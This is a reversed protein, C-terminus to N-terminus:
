SEEYVEVENSIKEMASEAAPKKTVFYDYAVTFIVTQTEDDMHANMGTGRILDDGATIYELVSFLSEAVGNSIRNRNEKPPFFLVEILHRKRYKWGRFLNETNEVVRVSFSNDIIGQEAEEDFIDADPYASRLAAVVGDTVENTM